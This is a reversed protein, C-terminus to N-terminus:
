EVSGLTLLQAGSAVQEGVDVCLEVVVGAHPAEVVHEMKMAELVVLPQNQGVREGKHVAIKVVRGPMPATLRGAGGGPGREGAADEVSLSPPRRFRFSRSDWEVVRDDDHDWVTVARGDVSVRTNVAAFDLQRVHIAQAGTHVVLADGGLDVSVTATHTQGARNWAAPQDVRGLRWGSRARWPDHDAMPRLFDLASVAASVPPPTQALSTVIGHEDLFSTSLDGSLFAPHEIV